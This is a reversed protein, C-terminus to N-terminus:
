PWRAPSSRRIRWEGGIEVLVRWPVRRRWTGRWGVALAVRRTTNTILADEAGHHRPSTKAAPADSRAAARAISELMSYRDCGRHRGRRPGRCPAAASDTHLIRPPMITQVLGACRTALVRAPWSTRRGSADREPAAVHTPKHLREREGVIRAVECRRAVGPANLGEPRPRVREVSPPRAPSDADHVRGGASRPLRVWARRASRRAQNQIGPAGRSGVVGM